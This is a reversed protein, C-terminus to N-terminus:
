IKHDLPRRLNIAVAPMPLAVAVIIGRYDCKGQAYDVRLETPPRAIAEELGDIILIRTVENGPRPSGAVSDIGTAADVGTESTTSWILSRRGVAARSMRVVVELRWSEGSDFAGM